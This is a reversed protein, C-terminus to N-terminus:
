SKSTERHRVSLFIFFSPSFFLFFTSSARVIAYLSATTLPVLSMRSHFRPVPYPLVHTACTRDIHVVEDHNIGREGVQEAVCYIPIKNRMTPQNVICGGEILLDVVDVQGRECACYLATKGANTTLTCDVECKLLFSIIKEYGEEAAIILPTNGAGTQADVDADMKTVLFEVAEQRGQRCAIHLATEGGSDARQGPLDNPTAANCREILYEKRALDLIQQHKPDGYHPNDIDMEASPAGAYILLELVGVRGYTAAIHMPSMGLKNPEDVNCGVEEILYRVIDVNGEKAAIHLPNWGSNTQIKVKCGREVLMRAINLHSRACALMLPTAGDLPRRVNIRHKHMGASLRDVVLGYGYFSCWLLIGDLNEDTPVRVRELLLFLASRTLHRPHPAGYLEIFLSVATETAVEELERCTLSLNCLDSCWLFTLIHSLLDGPLSRLIENQEPEIFVEEDEYSQSHRGYGRGHGRNGYVHHPVNNGRRKGGRLLASNGTRALIADAERLAQAASLSM